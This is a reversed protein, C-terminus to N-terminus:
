VKISQWVAKPPYTQYQSIVSRVDFSILVPLYKWYKWSCTVFTINEKLMLYM